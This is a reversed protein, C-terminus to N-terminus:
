SSAQSSDAGARVTLTFNEFTAEEWGGSEMMAVTGDLVGASAM